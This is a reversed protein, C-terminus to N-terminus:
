DWALALCPKSQYLITCHVFDVRAVAANHVKPQLYKGREQNTPSRMDPSKPTNSSLLPYNTLTIQQQRPPGPDQFCSLMDEQWSLLGV